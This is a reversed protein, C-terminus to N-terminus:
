VLAFNTGNIRSASLAISAQRVPLSIFRSRQARRPILVESASIYARRAEPVSMAYFPPRNARRINHLVEAMRPTLLHRPVACPQHCEGICHASRALISPPLRESGSRM